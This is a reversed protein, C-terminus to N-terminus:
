WECAGVAFAVHALFGDVGHFEDAGGVLSEVLVAEAAAHAATQKANVRVGGDVVLEVAHRM